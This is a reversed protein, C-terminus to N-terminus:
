RTPIATSASRRPRLATLLRLTTPLLTASLEARTTTRASPPREQRGPLRRMARAATPLRSPPPSPPFSIARKGSARRWPSAPADTDPVGGSSTTSSHPLAALPMPPTSDWKATRRTSSMSITWWSCREPLWCPAELPSTPVAPEWAVIAPFIASGTTPFM